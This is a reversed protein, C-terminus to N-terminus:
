PGFVKTYSKLLADIDAFTSMFTFLARRMAKYEQQMQQYAQDALKVQAESARRLQLRRGPAVLKWDFLSYLYLVESILLCWVLRKGRKETQFPLKRASGSCSDGGASSTLTLGSVSRVVPRSCRFIPGVTRLISPRCRTTSFRFNLQRNYCSKRFTATKM